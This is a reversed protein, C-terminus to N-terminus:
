ISFYPVHVIICKRGLARLYFVVGCTSGTFISLSSAYKPSASSGNLTDRIPSDSKQNLVRCAHFNIEELNCVKHTRQSKSMPKHGAHQARPYLGETDFGLADTESRTRSMQTLTMQALLVYTLLM